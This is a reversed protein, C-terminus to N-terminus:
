GIQMCPVTFTMTVGCESRNKAFIVGHHLEIIEKCIALGLGTGGTGNDTISSQYFREFVLNLEEEPIGIGNDSITFKIAPPTTENSCPAGTIQAYELSINIKGARPSYKIANILMNSIVQHIRMPDIRVIMEGDSEFTVKMEKGSIMHSMENIANQTIGVIDASELELSNVQADIKSLDLLTEILKLLRTGATNINQFFESFSQHEIETTKKMGIRSFSLIAHMPSRLEHTINNIFLTKAMDAQEASNKESSLEQTRLEVQLEINDRLQKLQEEIVMRRCVFITTIWIAIFTLGRNFLNHVLGGGSELSFLFGIATLLTCTIAVYLVYSRRPVWFLMMIVIIYAVTSSLGIPTVLDSTFIILMLMITLTIKMLNQTNDDDVLM